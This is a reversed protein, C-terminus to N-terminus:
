LQIKLKSAMIRECVGNPYVLLCLLIDGKTWVAAITGFEGGKASAVKNLLITQLNSQEM